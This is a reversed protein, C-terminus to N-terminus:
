RVGNMIWIGITIISILLILSVIKKFQNVKAIKLDKDIGIIYASLFGFLLGGLHGFVDIGSNPLFDFVLNLGIFILFTKAQNRFFDIERYNEGLMLFAGFLGFIAGSAGASISNGLWIASALNGGIGAIFYIMLFKFHGFIKEVYQGVFYLTLMNMLLHEFGIHIFMPTVLRYYQGAQLLSGTMAGWKLLILGNETGGALTMLGFVIVCVIILGETAWARKKLNILM